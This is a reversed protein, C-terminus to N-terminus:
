FVMLFQKYVREQFNIGIYIYKKFNQIKNYLQRYYKM